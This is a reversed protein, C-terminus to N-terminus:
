GLNPTVVPDSVCDVSSSLESSTSPIEDQTNNTKMRPIFYKKIGGDGLGTQESLKERKHGDLSNNEQWRRKPTVKM